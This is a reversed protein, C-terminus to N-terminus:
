LNRMAGARRQRRAPMGAAGVCVAQQAHVSVGVQGEGAAVARRALIHLPAPARLVRVVGEDAGQHVAVQAQAGDGQLPQPVKDVLGHAAPGGAGPSVFHQLLARRCRQLSCAGVLWRGLGPM